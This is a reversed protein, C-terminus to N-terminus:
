WYGADVMEEYETLLAEADVTEEGYPAFELCESAMEPTINEVKLEEEDYWGECAPKLEYWDRQIKFLDFVPQTAKYWPISGVEKVLKSSWDVYRGKSYALSLEVAASGFQAMSLPAAAPPTENGILSVNFTAKCRWSESGFMHMAEAQWVAVIVGWNKNWRGDLFAEWIAQKMDLLNEIMEIEYKQVRVFWGNAWSMKFGLGVDEKAINTFWGPKKGAAKSAVVVGAQSSAAIAGTAGTRIAFDVPMDQLDWTTEHEWMLSDNKWFGIDGLALPRNPVWNAFSGRLEKMLGRCYRQSLPKGRMDLGLESEPEELEEDWYGEVEEEALMAEQTSDPIPGDVLEAVESDIDHTPEEEVDTREEEVHTIEEEPPGCAPLIASASLMAMLRLM